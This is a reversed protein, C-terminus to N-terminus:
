LNGAGTFGFGNFVVDLSPLGVVFRSIPPSTPCNGGTRTYHFVGASVGQSKLKETWSLSVPLTVLQGVFNSHYDALLFLERYKGAPTKGRRHAMVHIRRRFDGDM